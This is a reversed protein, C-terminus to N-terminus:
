PAFRPNSYQVSPSSWLIKAPTWLKRYASFALVPWIMGPKPLSPRISKRSPSPRSGSFCDMTSVVGPMM